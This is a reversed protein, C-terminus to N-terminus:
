LINVVELCYESMLAEKVVCQVEIEQKIHLTHQHILSNKVEKTQNSLLYGGLLRFKRGLALNRWLNQSKQIAVQGNGALSVPV